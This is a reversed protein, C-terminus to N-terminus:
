EAAANSTGGPMIREIKSFEWRRPIPAPSRPLEHLPRRPLAGPMRALRPRCPLPTGGRARASM